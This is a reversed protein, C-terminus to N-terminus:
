SPAASPTTPRARDGRAVLRPPRRADGGRRAQGIGPIEAIANYSTTGEPYFRNVITFELKVPTGDPSSERSAATTRTASSRRDPHDQRSRLRRDRLRPDTRSRARCRQHPGARRGVRLMTTSRRPSRALLCARRPGAAHGRETAGPREAPPGAPTPNEPDYQNELAEDDRRLPTKTLTVPVITHRGVLVIQGKIKPQTEAIWKALDEKTPGTPPIIHIADAIVTGETSPTWGLVEGVLADKVPSVIFGSFRENLWGPRNFNWPELHGNELGWDTM